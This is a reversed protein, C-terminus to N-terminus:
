YTVYKKDNGNKDYKKPIKRPPTKIPKGDDSIIQEGSMKHVNHGNEIYDMFEQMEKSMKEYQEAMYENALRLRNIEKEMEDIKEDTIKVVEVKNTITVAEMVRRYKLLLHQTDQKLYAAQDASKVKHGLLRETNYQGLNIKTLQSAFFKRLNQSHFKCQGNKIGFGCKDNIRQFTKSFASPDLEIKNSDSYKRPIFLKREINSPQQLELSNLIAFISEPTSFTNHKESTKIRRINWTAVPANIKDLKQHIWEIDLPLTIPQDFYDQISKIFDQVTLSIIEARGMGSSVMLLIIAKYTPTAYGLAKQIEEITLLDEITDKNDNTQVTTRSRRNKPLNIEFTNYFSRVMTLGIKIHTPSFGREEYHSHFRKLYRRIKRSRMKIGENEENEADEILETPTKNILQCYNILHYKYNDRTRPRLNRTDLFEKFTPDSDINFESDIMPM